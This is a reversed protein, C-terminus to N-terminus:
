VGIKKCISDIEDTFNQCPPNDYFKQSLTRAIIPKGKHLIRGSRQLKALSLNKNWIKFKDLVYKLKPQTLNFDIKSEHRQLSTTFVNLFDKLTTNEKYIYGSNSLETYINTFITQNLDIILDENEKEEHKRYLKKKWKEKSISYVCLLWFITTSILMLVLGITNLDKNFIVLYIFINLSVVLLFSARFRNLRENKGSFIQNSFKTSIGNKWLSFKVLYDSFLDTIRDM